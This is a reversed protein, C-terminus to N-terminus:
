CLQGKYVPYSRRQFSYNGSKDIYIYAGDAVAIAVDSRSEGFLVKALTPTYNNIVGDRGIYPLGLFNSVFSAM